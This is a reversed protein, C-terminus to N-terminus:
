SFVFTEEPGFPPQEKGDEEGLKTKDTKKKRRGLV